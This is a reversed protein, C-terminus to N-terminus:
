ERARKTVIRLAKQVERALSLHPLLCQAQAASCKPGPGKRPHPPVPECLTGMHSSM